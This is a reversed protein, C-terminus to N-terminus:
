NFWVHNLLSNLRISVFNIKSIYGNLILKNEFLLRNKRIYNLRDIYMFVSYNNLLIKLQKGIVEHLKLNIEGRVIKKRNICFHTHTVSMNKIRM